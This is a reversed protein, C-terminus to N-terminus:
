TDARPEPPPRRYARLLADIAPVGTPYDTPELVAGAKLLEEIIARHTPRPEHIAAHLAGGLVTGGYANRAELPAGHRLLLRTAELQGRNTAWHLANLGTGNSARVDAGHALLQAALDVKGLFCACALAEHLATPDAAFRGEALWTAVPPPGAPAPSFLPELRSFDGHRLGDAAMEFTDPTPETGSTM